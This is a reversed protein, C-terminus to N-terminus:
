YRWVSNSLKISGFENPNLNRGGSDNYVVDNFTFYIGGYSQIRIVLWFTGYKGDTTKFYINKKVGDPYSRSSDPFVNTWNEDSAKMEYRLTESYGEKPAIYAEIDDSDIFGGGEIKFEVWWNYTENLNKTNLRTIGSGQNYYMVTLNVPPAVERHLDNSLINIINNGSKNGYEEHDEIEVRFSKYSVYLPVKKIENENLTKDIREKLRVHFIESPIVKEGSPNRNIGYRTSLENQLTRRTPKYGPIQRQSTYGELSYNKSTINVMRMYDDDFAVDLYGSEDINYTKIKENTIYGNAFPIFPLGGTWSRTAIQIKCPCVIEGDWGTISIGTVKNPRMARSIEQWYVIYILSVILLLIVAYIRKKNVSM